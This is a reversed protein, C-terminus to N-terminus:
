DDEEQAAKERKEAEEKTERKRPPKAPWYEEDWDFDQSMGCQSFLQGFSKSVVSQCMGGTTHLITSVRRFSEENNNNNNNTTIGTPKRIYFDLHQVQARPYPEEADANKISSLFEMLKKMAAENHAKETPHKTFLDPHVFLYFRRLLQNLSPKSVTEEKVAKSTQYFTALRNKKALRMASGHFARTLFLSPIMVRVSASAGAPLFVSMRGGIRASAM